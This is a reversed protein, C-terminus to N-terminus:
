ADKGQSNCPRIEAYNTQVEEATIDPQPNPAKFSLTAYHIEEPDGPDGDVSEHTSRPKPPVGNVDQAALDSTNPKESEGSSPIEPPESPGPQTETEPVVDEEAEERDLALALQAPQQRSVVGAEEDNPDAVIWVPQKANTLTNGAELEIVMKKKKRYREFALIIGIILVIVVLTILSGTVMLLLTKKRDRVFLEFSTKGVGMKNEAYCTYTGADELKLDSLQLVNSYIVNLQVSTERPDPNTENTYNVRCIINRKHDAASPLFNVVSSYVQTGNLQSHSDIPKSFGHWTFKPPMWSCSAFTACTINTSHGETMTDMSQIKPLRRETVNLYPIAYTFFSFHAEPNKVMRFFYNGADNKQANLILLSCNRATLNGIIQFRNQASKQSSNAVVPTDRNDSAGKKWLGTLTADKLAHKENYTFKCPIMACLGEEVSVQDPAKLDYGILKRVIVGKWLLQTSILGLFFTELPCAM